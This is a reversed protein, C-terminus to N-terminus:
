GTNAMEDRLELLVRLQDATFPKRLRPVDAHRAEFPGDYGSVFAFPIGDGVARRRGGTYTGDLSMDRLVADSRPCTRRTIRSKGYVPFGSCPSAIQALM